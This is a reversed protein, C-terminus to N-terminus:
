KISIIQCKESDYEVKFKRNLEINKNYMIIQEDYSNKDIINNELQIDLYEKIKKKRLRSELKTWSRAYINAVKNNLFTEINEISNAKINIIKVENKINTKYLTNKISDLEDQIDSKSM